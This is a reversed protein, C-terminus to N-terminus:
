YDKCLINILSLKLSKFKSYSVHRQLTDRVMDGYPRFSLSYERVQAVRAPDLIHVRVTELYLVPSQDFLYDTSFYCDTTLRVYQSLM